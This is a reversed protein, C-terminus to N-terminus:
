PKFTGAPFSVPPQILLGQPGIVRQTLAESFAQPGSALAAALDLRGVNQERLTSVALLLLGEAARTVEGLVAQDEPTTAAAASRSVGALIQGALGAEAKLAEPPLGGAIAASVTVDRLSGAARALVALVSPGDVEPTGVSQARQSASTALQAAAANQVDKMQAAPVRMASSLALIAADLLIPDTNKEIVGGLARVATFANDPNIAPSTRATHEFARALAGCAATRVSVRADGLASVVMNVSTSTALEGAIRLANVAVLDRPDKILRDVEPLLVEGMANRFDVSVNAGGLPAILHDRSLKVKDPEGSLGALEDRVFAAVASREDASLAAKSILAPALPACLAPVAPLLAGAGLVLALIMVRLNRVIKM